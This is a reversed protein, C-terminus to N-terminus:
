TERRVDIIRKGGKWFTEGNVGDNAGATLLGLHL